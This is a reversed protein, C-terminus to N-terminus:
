LRHAICDKGYVEGPPVGDLIKGRLCEHLNRANKYGFLTTYCGAATVAVDLPQRSRVRCRNGGRTRCAVRPKCGPIFGNKALWPPRGLQWDSTIVLFPCLEQSFKIGYKGIQRTGPVYYLPLDAAKIVTSCYNCRTGVRCARSTCYSFIITLIPSGCTYNGCMRFVQITERGM